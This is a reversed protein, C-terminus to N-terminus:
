AVVQIAAYLRPEHAWLIAPYFAIDFRQFIFGSLKVRYQAFSGPEKKTGVQQGVQSRALTFGSVVKRCGHRM